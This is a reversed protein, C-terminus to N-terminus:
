SVVPDLLGLVAVVALVLAALAQEAIIHRKLRHLWL